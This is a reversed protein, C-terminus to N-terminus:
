SPGEISAVAREKESQPANKDWRGKAEELVQQVLRDRLYELAAHGPKPPLMGKARASDVQDIVATIQASLLGYMRFRPDFTWLATMEEILQGIWFVANLPHTPSDRVPYTPWYDVGIAVPGERPIRREKRAATFDVILQCGIRCWGPMAAASWSFVFGPWTHLHSVLKLLWKQNFIADTEPPGFAVLPKQKEIKKTKAPKTM